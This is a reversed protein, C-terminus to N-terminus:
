SPGTSTAPPSAPAPCTCRGPPARRCPADRPTWSTSASTRSPTGIVSGRRPDDLDARTLRHHTVHVTTETIGYMNVLAPRDLGHRDAWPRLRAPRLAEGGFVVHRLAGADGGRELDADVLQEFASPTQSLVTM